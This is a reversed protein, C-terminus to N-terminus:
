GVFPVEVLDNELDIADLMPQPSRDVRVAVDQVDEHLRSAVSRGRRQEHALEELCPAQRPHHHGVLESGIRHGLRFECRAYLM